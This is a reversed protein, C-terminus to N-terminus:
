LCGLQGGPPVGAPGEPLFRGHTAGPVDNPGKNEVWGDIASRHYSFKTRLSPAIPADITIGANWAGFDGVGAKIKGQFEAAPKKTIFSIAGASSNRGFLTGQPGRLIEVRQLDLVNITAGSTRAIYVGDIYVGVPNDITLTQSDTNGFGRLFLSINSTSTPFDYFQLSPAQLSLDSLSSIGQTELMTESFAVVSLPTDQLSEVRKQATVVVEELQAFTTGSLLCSAMLVAAPLVKAPLLTKSM